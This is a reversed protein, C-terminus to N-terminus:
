SVKEIVYTTRMNLVRVINTKKKLMTHTINTFMM